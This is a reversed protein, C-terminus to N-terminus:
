RTYGHARAARAVPRFSLRHQPCPGNKVLNDAHSRTGYGMNKGFGYEPWNRDLERMIADRTEKAAVSAAAISLSRSDGKVIPQVSLAQRHRLEAFPPALSGDVLLHLAHDHFDLGSLAQEMARFTAALIGIRDITEADVSAVSIRFKAPTAALHQLETWIQARRRATLAKSDDLGPPLAPIIEPHIWAAAATVPGAWPGRGAEDIGIVARPDRAAFLDDSAKNLAQEELHFDPGAPRDAAAAV